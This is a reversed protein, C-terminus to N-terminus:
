EALVYMESIMLWISLEIEVQECDSVVNEWHMKRNTCYHLM